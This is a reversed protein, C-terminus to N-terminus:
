AYFRCLQYVNWSNNVDKGELTQLHYSGPGTVKAVTFPGEWPSSLKHLGETNQIRCLVLDGINFSREKINRDHYRRIGELYRASQILAACHAEELGDIDVRRSDESIGEDYHEVAPSDWIVDGPLIAESGYVLFYPSQGTPKSHQTRLGWLADPLEKIWQGGESNAADHLQKKLTDLVM